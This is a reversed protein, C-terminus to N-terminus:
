EDAIVQTVDTSVHDEADLVIDENRYMEWVKEEAEERSPADVEIVRELVEQMTVAFKM